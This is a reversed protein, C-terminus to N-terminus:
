YYYKERALMENDEKVSCTMFDNGIEGSRVNKLVATITKKNQLFLEKTISSSMNKHEFHCTERMKFISMKNLIGGLAFISFTCAGPFWTGKSMNKLM